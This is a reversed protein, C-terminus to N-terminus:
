RARIAHGATSLERLEKVAQFWDQDPSGIPCGRAKWLELARAAIDEHGFATVGHGTTAHAGHSIGGNHELARRSQESPSLHDQKGHQQEAALHAHEPADRLEVNRQQNEYQQSNNDRTQM